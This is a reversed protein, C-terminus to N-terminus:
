LKFYYKSTRWAEIRANYDQRAIEEGQRRALERLEELSMERPGVIRDPSWGRSRAEAQVEHPIARAMVSPGVEYQPYTVVSADFLEGIKSITRLVYTEGQRNKETTWKDGGDAVSFGFSCGSLDGRQVLILVEKALQTDPLSARFHLGVSDANLQLTGSKTRALLKSPEHNVLFRVDPNSSMVSDFCGAALIEWFGGSKINTVQGYTACYGVLTTPGAAAARTIGFRDERIQKTAM